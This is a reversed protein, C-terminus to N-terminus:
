SHGPMRPLLYFYDIVKTAIFDYYSAVFPMM